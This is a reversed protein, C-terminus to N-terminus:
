GDHGAQVQGDGVEGVAAQAALPRPRQAVGEGAINDDLAEHQLVVVDIARHTPPQQM